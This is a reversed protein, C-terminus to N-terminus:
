QLAKGQSYAPYLLTDTQCGEITLNKKKPPPLHNTFSLNQFIGDWVNQCFMSERAMALSPSFRGSPLQRFTM